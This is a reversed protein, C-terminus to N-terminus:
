YYAPPTGREGILMVERLQPSSLASEKEACGKGAQQQTLLGGAGRAHGQVDVRAHGV